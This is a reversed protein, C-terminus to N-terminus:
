VDTTLYRQARNFYVFSNAGEFSKPAQIIAQTSHVDTLTDVVEPKGSGPPENTHESTDTASCSIVM